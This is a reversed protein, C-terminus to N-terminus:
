AREAGIVVDAAVLGDGVLRERDPDVGQRGVGKAVVERAVLEVGPPVVRVAPAAEDAVEGVSRAGDNWQDWAVVAGREASPATAARQGNKTSIPTPIDGLNRAM